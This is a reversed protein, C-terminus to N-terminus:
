SLRLSHLFEDGIRDPLYLLDGLLILKEAGEENYIELVRKTREVDGHIDSAFMLRM